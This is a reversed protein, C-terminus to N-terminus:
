YLEEVSELLQILKHEVLYPFINKTERVHEKNFEEMIEKEVEEPISDFDIMKTNRDWNKKVDDDITNENLFREKFIQIKKKGCPRQRKGEVIFTDDDSLINPVGDSSDGSIIHSVLFDEPNDCVLFDQKMPSWQEVNSYKQLQQFDKDASVILVPEMPSSNKAICAIIDDAETKPVSINKWPFNEEIEGRIETMTNFIKDWDHKSKEKTAKRNAKYLPFFDKRWCHASDHCIVIDGYKDKFKSNYFRYTNVVLHRLISEDEINHHKMSAFVNAISLQNNDILIM